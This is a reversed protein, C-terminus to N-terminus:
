RRTDYKGSTFVYSARRVRANMDLIVLGRSCAIALSKKSTIYVFDQPRGHDLDNFEPFNNRYTTADLFTISMNESVTILVPNINDQTFNIVGVNCGHVEYDLRQRQINKPTTGKLAHICENTQLDWVRAAGRLSGTIIYQGDGTSFYAVHQQADEGCALTATPEPERINWIKVTCDDSASSFTNGDPSFMVHKVFSDHGNFTRICAWDADGEVDWSWLKILNDMSASLVYPQNPHVALSEVWEGHDEQANLLPIDGHARFKKVEQGTYSAVYIYGNGGGAVIWNQRVIFKACCIWHTLNETDTGVVHSVEFNSVNKEGETETEYNWISVKGNTHSALIWPEVPHVDMSLIDAKRRETIM